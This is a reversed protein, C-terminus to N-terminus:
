ELITFPKPKSQYVSNIEGAIKINGPYTVKLKVKLQM